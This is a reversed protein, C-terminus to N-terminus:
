RATSSSRSSTTRSTTTTASRAATASGATAARALKLQTRRDLPPADYTGLLKLAGELDDVELAGSVYARGIGLQGPARLVHALAEPSRVHFTVAAGGNTAPLGTGDWFTLAFPRERLTAELERRLPGTTRLAASM